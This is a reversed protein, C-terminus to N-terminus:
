FCRLTHSIVRLAAHRLRLPTIDAYYLLRFAYRRRICIIDAAYPTHRLHCDAFHRLLTASFRCIALFFRCAHRPLMLSFPSILSLTDAARQRTAFYAMAYCLTILTPLTFPTAADALSFTICASLIHRFYHFAVAAAFFDPTAADAFILLCRLLPTADFIMLPFAFFYAPALPSFHRFRFFRRRLSFRLFDYHRFLILRPMLM